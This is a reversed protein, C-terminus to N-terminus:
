PLLPPRPTPLPARDRIREFEGDGIAVAELSKEAAQDARQERAEFQPRLPSEGRDDASWAPDLPVSAREAAQAGVKVWDRQRIHAVAHGLARVFATEDPATFFLKAPVFLHGGPFVVPKAEAEARAYLAVTCCPGDGPQAAALERVIRELYAQVEPIDVAGNRERFQKAMLDGLARERQLAQRASPSQAPLATAALLLAAIGIRM